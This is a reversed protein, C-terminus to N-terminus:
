TKRRRTRRSFKNPNQRFKNLCSAACFYYTEGEFDYKGAANEPAVSMGCVPDVFEGDPAAKMEGHSVTKKGNQKGINANAPEYIEGNEVKSVYKEKCGVACFYVTEGNEAEYKAAANEPTVTMGCIPDVYEKVKKRGIQTFNTQTEVGVKEQFRKLCNPCCFYSMEGNHEFKAPANAPDVSMGCIQDIATRKGLEKLKEDSPKQRSIQTMSIAQQPMEIQKKYKELCSKSCFYVTESNHELSGAATEPAVKMKCIPDIFEKNSM